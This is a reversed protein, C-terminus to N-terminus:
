EEQQLELERVLKRLRRMIRSRAAYVSGRSIGMELAVESVPAGDIATRFFALWTEGDARSKVVQAAQRYLQRRYELNILELAVVEEQEDDFIRMTSSGGRAQFRSLSRFANVTENRAIVLLWSRFRHNQTSRNWSEIHKGVALFVTQVLDCADADQLGRARAVRYVVPEYVSYFRDWADADSPDELRVLLGQSTEPWDPM